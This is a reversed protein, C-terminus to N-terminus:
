PTIAVLLDAVAEGAQRGFGDADARYTATVTKGDTAADINRITPEYRRLFSGGLGQERTISVFTDVASALQDADGASGLAATVDFGRRDGESFAAGSVYRISGFPFADALQEGVRREVLAEFDVDLAFRAYEGATADFARRLEGTAGEASGEAVDIADRVARRSGLAVRGDGLPAMWEKGNDYATTGGHTRETVTGLSVDRFSTVMDERRWDTYGLVGWYPAAAPTGSLAADFEEGVFAVGREMKRPDLRYREELRDLAGTVSAPGEGSEDRRRALAADAGDLIEDDALIAGFDVALLAGAAGPVDRAPSDPDIRSGSGGLLGFCGGLSAAAGLAALGGLAQRRSTERPIM